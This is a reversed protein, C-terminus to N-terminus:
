RKEGLVKSAVKEGIKTGLQKAGARVDEFGRGLRELANPAEIM